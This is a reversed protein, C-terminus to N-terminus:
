DGAGAAAPARAPASRVMAVSVAVLILALGVVIEFDTRLGASLASRALLPDAAATVHAQLVVGLLSVGVAGGITRAFQNMATAAGRRGWDVSAQIVILLPASFAGMGAGIVLSAASAGIVSRASIALALLVTGALLTMGGAVVLRQYGVRVMVFGAAASAVPWGISMAGVAVGAAYASGGEVQQVFLPVYATVAFLITGALMAILMAPAVVRHRLLELPLLPARARGEIVAFAVLVAVAGGVAPWTPTASASGSGLGWLLLAIGATLLAASRLDLERSPRHEPRHEVYGWVLATAVLGVPLNVVFIWRWGITSVFLAGLGPGIIAAIAWMSGFLGQLRARQRMPFIDGVITLVVPQICGAGVGQLSRFAILWGMGPSAGCLVSAVVFLTMGVLLVRRRGHMDALRGWVPVSTTATILYGSVVWPYLSFQGLDRAITPLATGVITSDMAAVFMSIMLGAMLRVLHPTWALRDTERGVPSWVLSRPGPTAAAPGPCGPRLARNWETRPCSSAQM